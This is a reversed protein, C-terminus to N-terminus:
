QRPHYKLLEIDVDVPIYGEDDMILYNYIAKSMEKRQVITYKVQQEKQYNDYATLGLYTGLISIAVFGSISALSIIAVKFSFRKRKPKEYKTFDIKNKVEDINSSYNANDDLYKNILDKKM